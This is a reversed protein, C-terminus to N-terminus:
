STAIVVFSFQLNTKTTESFVNLKFKTTGRENLVVTAPKAGGETTATVAYGALAKASNWTITYEGTGVKASVFDGSGHITTGTEEILGWSLVGPTAGSEQRVMVGSTRVGNEYLLTDLKAALEEIDTAGNKVEGASTPYPLSLHTTEKEPM